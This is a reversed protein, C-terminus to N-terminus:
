VTLFNTEHYICISQSIPKPVSIFITTNMLTEKWGGHWRSNNIEYVLIHGKRMNFSISPCSVPFNAFDNYFIRSILNFGFELNSTLNAPNSIFCAVNYKNKCPPWIYIDTYYQSWAYYAYHICFLSDKRYLVTM